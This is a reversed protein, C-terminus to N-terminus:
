FPVDNGTTVPQKYSDQGGQEQGYGGQNGQGGTPKSDLMKMERAVIETTYRKQGQQDEWQRTQISGEIYVKSGKHLYEGCIEALRKWAVVRHWETKEQQQGSQDKWRETTAVTFNAVATGNGTFKTEPDAGLNGLIIAKNVM